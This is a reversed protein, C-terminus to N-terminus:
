MRADNIFHTKELNADSTKSAERSAGHALEGFRVTDKNRQTTGPAICLALNSAIQPRQTLEFLGELTRAQSSLTALLFSLFWNWHRGRNPTM